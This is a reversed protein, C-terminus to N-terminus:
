ITENQARNTQIAEWGIIATKRIPNWRYGGMIGSAQIVRHCPILYALPNSGIATGVARSANPQDIAKAIAGYSLLNGVPIKLLAEWVKLQFDSGKLHIHIPKEQTSSLNFTNLVAKHIEEEKPIFTAKPFQKNLISLYEEDEELFSIQCIGKTTSAIVIKGFPSDQISYHITLSKGENKYEAPTMAEINVFLEHLRSSSSLGVSHSTSLISNNQTLVEKAHSLSIYQLFKKPTTGVWDQFLRQFHFPSLHIHAAIEDLSPQQTFNDKIYAIARAIRKYNLTNEEVEM